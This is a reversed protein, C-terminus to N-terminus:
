NLMPGSPNERDLGLESNGAKIAKLEDKMAKFEKEKFGMEISEIIKETKRRQYIKFINGGTTMAEVVSSAAIEVFRKFKDRLTTGHSLTSIMRNFNISNPLEKILQARARIPIDGDKVSVILSGLYDSVKNNKESIAVHQLRALREVGQSALWYYGFNKRQFDGVWASLNNPNAFSSEAYAKQLADEYQKSFPDILKNGWNKMHDRLYVEFQDDLLARKVRHPNKQAQLRSQASLFNIKDTKIAIQLKLENNDPELQQKLRLDKLESKTQALLIAIFKQEDLLSLKDDFPMDFELVMSLFFQNVATMSPRLLTGPKLCLADEQESLKTLFEKYAIEKMHICNKVEKALGGASAEFERMQNVLDMYAQKIPSDIIGGKGIFALNLLEFDEKEEANDVPMDEAYRARLFARADNVKEIAGGFLRAGASAAAVMGDDRKELVIKMDSTYAKRYDLAQIQNSFSMIKDIYPGYQEKLEPSLSQVSNILLQSHHGIKMFAKAQTLLNDTSKMQEFQALAEQVHYLNNELEKLQRVVRPDNADVVYLDSNQPKKLYQQVQVSLYSQTKEQLQERLTVVYSSLVLKQINEINIRINGLSSEEIQALEEDMNQSLKAEKSFEERAEKMSELDEVYNIKKFQAMAETTVSIKLKCAKEQQKLSDDIFTKQKVLQDLKLHADNKNLANILENTLELNGNAMIQQIEIFHQKLSLRDTTSLDSFSKGQYKELINFFDSAAQQQNEIKFLDTWLLKRREELSEAREKKFSESNGVPKLGQQEFKKIQQNIQQNMADIKEAIPKSLTGPKLYSRAELDDFMALLDPYSEKVWQQYAILTSKQLDNGEQSLMATLKLFGQYANRGRAALVILSVKEDAVMDLVRNMARIKRDSIRLQEQSPKKGALQETLQHLLAPLEAGLQVLNIAEGKKPMIANMGQGIFSGMEGNKLSDFWSSNNFVESVQNFVPELLDYNDRVLNQVEPAADSLHYISKYLQKVAAVGQHVAIVKDVDTKTEIHQATQLFKEAYYLSNIVKKVAAIQPPDEELHTFPVGTQQPTLEMALPLALNDQLRTLLAVRTDQIKVIYGPLPSEKKIEEKPVEQPKDKAQEKKDIEPLNVVEPPKEKVVKKVDDTVKDTGSVIVPEKKKPKPQELGLSNDVKIEKLKELSSLDQNQQTLLSLASGYANVQQLVPAIYRKAEPSLSQVSSYLEKASATLTRLTNFNHVYGQSWELKEFDELAKELRFLSNEVHKIQKVMEPDTEEITYPPKEFYAADEKSLRNLLVTSFAERTKHITGSLGLEQLYAINGRLNKLSSARVAVLDGAKVEAVNSSSELSRKMSSIRISVRQDIPTSNPTGLSDRANEAVAIKLKEAQIQADLSKQLEGEAGIFTDVQSRLLYAVGYNVKNRFWGGWSKDEVKGVTNLVAVLENERELSSHALFHQINPYIQRITHRDAETIESFPQGSYKKLIGIFTGVDRKQSELVVIAKIYDRQNADIKEERTKALAKPTVLEETFTLLTSESLNRNVRELANLLDKSLLGPKLYNNRELEDVYAVFAPLYQNAWAIYGEMSRQAFDMDDDEISEFWDMLSRFPKSETAGELSLQNIFPVKELKELLSHMVEFKSHQETKSLTTKQLDAVVNFLEALNTFASILPNNETSSTVDDITLANESGALVDNASNVVENESFQPVWGSSKIMEYASSFVPSLLAYNNMVVAQIEPTADNLLALSKYIQTLMAVTKPASRAMQWKSSFDTQEWSKTAEEAHYLCNIVKKIAAIQPPDLDLHIFPVGEVQPILSKALPEALQNQLTELLLARVQAIQESYVVAPEKKTSTTSHQLSDEKLITGKGLEFPESTM